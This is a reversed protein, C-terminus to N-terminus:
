VKADERNSELGIREKEGDRWRVGKKGVGDREEM